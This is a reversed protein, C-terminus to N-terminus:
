RRGGRLARLEELLSEIRRFQRNTLDTQAALQELAEQLLRRLWKTEAQFSTTAEYMEDASLSLLSTDEFRDLPASAWHIERATFDSITLPEGSM